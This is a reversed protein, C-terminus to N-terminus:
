QVKEARVPAETRGGLVGTVLERFGYPVLMVGPELEGRLVVPLVAEGHASILRVPWGHRVGIEDADAKSMQVLGCPYLKRRSVHDRCLTPSFSVLPDSGWDFAGDLALVAPAAFEARGMGLPHLKIGVGKAPRSVFTGWAEDMLRGSIGGCAPVVEGIERLVDGASRYPQPLGLLASLEALVQWGPRAEGPPPVAPRVRQVRGELSTATGETEAFSAIPLVVHAAKATPTLFADLVILCEKDAIAALAQQGTPLVAPLDEALVLLGSAQHVMADADLGAELAPRRGWARALREAAATDSLPATGPLLDPAVGMECAGRLNGRAPLLMIASGRRGLHGAIAALTAIARGERAAREPPGGEPAILISVREAELYWRAAQRVHDDAVPSPVSAKLAELNPLAQRSARDPEPEGLVAAVLSALLQERRGPLIPLHLTALRALQTRACGVTVLKAGAKIAKIVAHAAQPHTSALDGELVLVARSAEVDELTGAPPGGGVSAIGDVLPQYTARLCSDVHGTQLAGRALRAALYNEENTARASGLVGVSRGRKVLSSLGMRAHELADEWTAPELTGGRRVMPRTLREGWTPAEHANWGRACLKGRSVPHHESPAVGVSRGERVQVYVACGCACFPCTTLVSEV